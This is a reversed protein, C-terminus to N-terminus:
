TLENSILVLTSMSTSSMPIHIVVILIFDHFVALSAALPNREKFSSNLHVGFQITTLPHLLNVVTEFHSLKIECHCNKRVGVLEDIDTIASM